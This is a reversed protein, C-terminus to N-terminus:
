RNASIYYGGARLARRISYHLKLASRPTTARLALLDATGMGRLAANTPPMNSAVRAAKRTAKPAAKTARKAGKGTAVTASRVVVVKGPAHQVKGIAKGAATGIAKRAM